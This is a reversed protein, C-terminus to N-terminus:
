RRGLFPFSAGRQLAGLLSVPWVQSKKKERFDSIVPYSM